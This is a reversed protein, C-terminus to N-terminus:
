QTKAGRVDIASTSQQENLPPISNKNNRFCSIKYYNCVNKVVKTVSEYRANISFISDVVCLPVSAYYYESGLESTELNLYETCSNAISSIIQRDVM